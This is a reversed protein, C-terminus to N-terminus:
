SILHWMNDNIDVGIIRHTNGKYIVEQGLKFSNAILEEVEEEKYWTCHLNNYVSSEFEMGESLLYEEKWKELCHGVKSDSVLYPYITPRKDVGLIVRNGILQGLKFKKM